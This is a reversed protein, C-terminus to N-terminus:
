RPQVDAPIACRYVEGGLRRRHEEKASELLEPDGIVDLASMAMAKAAYIM